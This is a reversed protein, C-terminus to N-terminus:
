PQCHICSAAAEPVPGQCHSCLYAGSPSLDPTVAVRQDFVFCEGEWHAGGAQEFYGLIGGELQFVQQFGLSELYPAAKECRIGGTCYTVVKRKKWDEPITAAAEPFNVFHELQLSHAGSFKGLRVEYENRTDLMLFDEKEAFWAALEKPRLRTAAKAPPSFNEVRFTVIETKTKLSLKAFPLTPSFSEKVAVGAFSPNKAFGALARRVNAEPGALFANMGEPALIVTGLVGLPVLLEELEKRRAGLDAIAEFQYFAVNLFNM